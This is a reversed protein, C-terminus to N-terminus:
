KKILPLYFRRSEDIMMEIIPVLQTDEESAAEGDMIIHGRQMMLDSMHQNVTNYM